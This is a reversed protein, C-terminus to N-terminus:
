AAVLTVKYVIRPCTPGCISTCCFPIKGFQGPEGCPGDFCSLRLYKYVLSIPECTSEDFEPHKIWTTEGADYDPDEWQFAIAATQSDVGNLMQMALVRFVSDDTDLNICNVKIAFTTSCITADESIWEERNNGFLDLELEFDNLPCDPDTLESEVLEFIAKLKDPFCSAEPDLRDEPKQGKLCFCGCPFCDLDDIATVFYQWNDFAGEIFAFNGIQQGNDDYCPDGTGGICASAVPVQGSFSGISGRLMVGPQYCAFADVTDASVYGPAIPWPHEVSVPDGDGYVTVKIRANATDMDLPEYWVEYSSSRPDGGRVKYVSRSRVEMLRFNAIWSGKDHQPQHCITTALAGPDGNDTVYEDTLSWDGDIVHWRGSPPTANERTFTDDGLKCDLCCCLRPPM